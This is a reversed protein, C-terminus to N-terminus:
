LSHQQCSLLLDNSAQSPVGFKLICGTSLISQSDSPLIFSVSFHFHPPSIALMKNM